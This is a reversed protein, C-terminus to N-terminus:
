SCRNKFPTISPKWNSVHETSEEYDIVKSDIKLSFMTKLHDLMNQSRSNHYVQLVTKDSCLQVQHKNCFTTTLELLYKLHHINNTVIASDDAQGIGSVTIPGLPVGLSSDQLIEAKVSRIKVLSKLGM